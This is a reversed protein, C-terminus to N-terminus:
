ENGSQARRNAYQIMKGLDKEFAEDDKKGARFFYKGANWMHPDNPYLWDLIDWVEVGFKDRFGDYHPPSVVEDFYEMAEGFDEEGPPEGIEPIPEGFWPSMKSTHIRLEFVTGDKERAEVVYWGPLTSKVNLEMIPWDSVDHGSFVDPSWGEGTM